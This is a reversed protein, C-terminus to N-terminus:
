RRFNTTRRQKGVAASTMREANTDGGVITHPANRRLQECSNEEGVKTHRFKKVNSVSEGESKYPPIKERNAVDFRM